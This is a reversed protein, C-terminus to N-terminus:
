RDAALNMARYKEPDFAALADSTLRWCWNGEATGPTNIRAESGLALLDAFPFVALSAETGLLARIVTDTPPEGERAGLRSLIEARKDDPLSSLFAVLTDNDHTGSYVATDERCHEPLHPSAPDGLFAFQLVRTSLFGNQRRLADTAEDIMGLDEAIIPYGDTLDAIADFFAQGPGSEWRGESAPADRPIAYYSSYGRFHDLRLGDFRARLFAFRERLFSYGDERMAEYDYLPNGWIQGDAAFMDPPAGAVDGLARYATPYMVTDYSGPASYIPLDGIVSVGRTHAYARLAEWERFFEYQLFAHLAFDEGEAEAALRCYEATLPNKDLFGEVASRDARAAAARLIPMRAAIADPDVASGESTEASAAEAATLLGAERMEAPDLYAPDGAFSSRGAYPSRYGDPPCFPLTQWLSFGAEALMDILNRAGRGLTGIGFRGPLSFLPLLVGSQRKM